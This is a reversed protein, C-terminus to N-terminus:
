PKIRDNEFYDMLEGYPDFTYSQWSGSKRGDVLQYEFLVYLCRMRDMRLEQSKYPPPVDDFRERARALAAHLEAESLVREPCRMEQAASSVGPALAAMLAVSVTIGRVSM